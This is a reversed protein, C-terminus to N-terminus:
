KIATYENNVNKVIVGKLELTTIIPVIEYIKKNISISIASPFNVGNKICDYVEREDDTLEIKQEDDIKYGMVEAVDDIKTTLRAGDKILNNCLEGSYDGLSYPFAFIEKGYDLAYDATHRAGSTVSGSTILVGGSLGAIIRNRIPYYYIKPPVEPPYESILLGGDAVKEIIDRNTESKIFDFGSAMVCIVNENKIAGKIAAKDGGSAVGTVITVGSSSLECAFDETLKLVYAATKRSGVIAFKNKNKLLGINGKAYLCIPRFPLSYLECPYDDSEETIVTVKREDYKELLRELYDSNLAALFTNAASASVNNQLYYVAEDSNDFLDAFDDYLDIIARKHKYDLNLFGDLFVLAQEKANM